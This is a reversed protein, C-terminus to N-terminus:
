SKSTTSSEKYKWKYGFATIYKKGKPSIYGKCVKIIESNAKKRGTLQLAAETASSYEKIINGDLDLQVVPVSNASGIKNKTDDSHKRGFFPNKSGIRQKALKSLYKRVEESHTRGLMPNKRGIAKIRIKEKSEETQFCGNSGSGGETMNYGNNYSDYQQIYYIELDDLKRRLDERSESSITELVEYKFAKPTYKNIAADFRHGSYEGKFNLFKRRRDRENTTQGIYSKGSPSEYRYIIGIMIYNKVFNSPIIPVQLHILLIYLKAASQGM